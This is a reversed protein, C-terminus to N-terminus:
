SIRAIDDVHFFGIHKAEIDNSGISLMAVRLGPEYEIRMRLTFLFRIVSGIM